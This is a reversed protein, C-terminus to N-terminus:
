EEEDDAFHEYDMKELGAATDHSQDYGYDFEWPLYRGLRNAIEEWSGAASKAVARDLAQQFGQPDWRQMFWFHRGPVVGGPLKEVFGQLAEEWHSALWRPSCVTVEFADTGVDDATGALIQVEVGFDVPDRPAWEGIPVMGGFDGALISDAPASTVLIEKVDARIRETV